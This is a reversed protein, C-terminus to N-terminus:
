NAAAKPQASQKFLDILQEDREDPLQVALVAFIDGTGGARSPLGKGRVRFVGGSSSWEPITLAV